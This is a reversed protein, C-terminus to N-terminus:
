KVLIAKRAAGTAHGDTVLRYFYPGSALSRGAHDRGDWAVVHEGPELQRHVLTRVIEGQVNAIQVEVYAPAGLRFPIATSPNFPNPRAEGLLDPAAPPRGADSVRTRRLFIVYVAGRDTGGDDDFGCGAVLTQNTQEDSDINGIGAVSCAFEDSTDLVGGFNGSTSSLKRLTLIAGSADMGIVYAAGHSGGGDDDGTAGVALSMVCPGPTDYVNDLDGLAALAGGFEDLNDLLGTLAATTSSWKVYSVVTGSTNITLLYVCGRDTGGDDDGITGVAVVGAGGGAGDLDGLFTVSSGFEDGTDIIATFNGATDSIKSWSLTSGASNLFLVYIAGRSLGGDDDGITGVAIAGASPGAGDLDGLSACAGGFEDANDIVATFNGATDSIKQFSLVNGTSALFLIYICGRDTGGDDDGAAGAALAAVSPGAGDLDGLYALSSGFDDANDITATFNGATDSIKQYSLVAGNGDLFLIYVAGRDGGGDDDGGAGVAIAVVSPGPGDLDGLCAVNGGFEDANDITATFNGVTDSIKATTIASGPQGAALVPISLLFVAALRTFLGLRM